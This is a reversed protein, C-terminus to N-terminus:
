AAPVPVPANVAIPLLVSIRNGHGTHEVRVHQALSRILFLGRGTESLVDPVHEGTSHFPKGRDCVVLRAARDDCEITVEAPGPTHRAVNSVLEGIIAEVAAFDSTPSAIEGLHWLLARKVRHAANGNKADLQWTHCRAPAPRVAQGAGLRRANAATALLTVAIGLIGCLLVIEADLRLGRSFVLLVLFALPVAGLLLAQIRIKDIRALM